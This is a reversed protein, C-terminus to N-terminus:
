DIMNTFIVDIIEINIERKGRLFLNNVEQNYMKM